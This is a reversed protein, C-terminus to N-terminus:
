WLIYLIGTAEDYEHVHLWLSRPAGRYNRHAGRNREPASPNSAVGGLGYVLWGRQRASREHDRILAVLPDISRADGLAAVANLFRPCWLYDNEEEKAQEMGAHVFPVVDEDELMALALAARGVFASDCFEKEMEHRLPEIAEQVGLLGLALAANGQVIDYRREVLQILLLAADRDGILGSALACAGKLERAFRFRGTDALIQRLAGAMERHLHRARHSDGLGRGLVGAAIGAWPNGNALHARLVNWTEEATQTTRFGLAPDAGITALSVLAFGRAQEDATSEAVRELGHRIRLGLGQRVQAGLAGLALLASRIVDEHEDADAIARLLQGAVRHRQEDVSTGTPSELLRVLTGASQARVWPHRTRDGFLSAVLDIRSRAALANMPLPVWGLGVMCAVQVDADESDEGDLGRLLTRAIESHAAEDVSQEAAFALAYAAFARTRYPVPVADALVRGAREDLLLVTLPATYEVGGLAGLAVVAGEQLRPDDHALLRYLTPEMGPWAPRVNAAGVRVLAHLGGELLYLDDQDEVLGILVPVIREQIELPTPCREEVPRGWPLYDASHFSWWITWSDIEPGPYSSASTLPAAPSGDDDALVTPLSGDATASRSACGLGALLGALIFLIRLASSPLDLAATSSPVSSTVRM